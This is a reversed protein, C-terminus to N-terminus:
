DRGPARIRKVEEQYRESDLGGTNHGIEPWGPHMLHYREMHHNWGLAHGLEHELVLLKESSYRNMFVQARVLAGTERHKYTRTVAIQDPSTVEQTVLLVTIEGPLGGQVCISSGYDVKVAGFEYGLRRWMNLAQELRSLRVGSDTCLRIDPAYSWYGGLQPQRPWTFSAPEAPPPAVPTGQAPYVLVTLLAIMIFNRMVHFYTHLFHSLEGWMHYLPLIPFPCPVSNAHVPSFQHDDPASLNPEKEM